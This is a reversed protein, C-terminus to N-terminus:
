SSKNTENKNSIIPCLGIMASINNRISINIMTKIKLMGFMLILTDVNKQVLNVM